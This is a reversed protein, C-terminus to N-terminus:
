IFLPLGMFRNLLVFEAAAKAAGDGVTHFLWLWNLWGVDANDLRM